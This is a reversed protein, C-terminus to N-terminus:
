CGESCIHGIQWEDWREASRTLKTFALLIEDGSAELLHLSVKNVVVDIAMLLRYPDDTDNKAEERMAEVNMLRDLEEQEGRSLIAQTQEDSEAATLSPQSKVYSFWSTWSESKVAKAKAEQMAKMKKDRIIQMHVLVRFWVAVDVSLDEEMKQIDREFEEILDNEKKSKKPTERLKLLSHFSACYERRRHCLISIENWSLKRICFQRKVAAVAYQWWGRPNRVPSQRPRLDRNPTRVQEAAIFDLLRRLDRVQIESLQARVTDLKFQFAQKAEAHDDVNKMERAGLRKYKLECNLPPVVFQRRGEVAGDERIGPMFFEDWAETPLKRLKESEQDDSVDTDFYVALRSMQAIKLLRDLAGSAVFTREGADDVTFATIHDLTIGARFPNSSTTFDEYRIHINSISVQLNGLITEIYAKVYTQKGDAEDGDSSGQKTKSAMLELWGKEGRDVAEHKARREREAFDSSDDESFSDPVALLFIRDLEVIVPEKGLSAWPVKLRLSGLFGASVTVPLNFQKLADTKLKLNNLVVDGATHWVHVDIRVHILL